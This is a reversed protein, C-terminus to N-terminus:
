ISPLFMGCLQQGVMGTMAAVTERRLYGEGRFLDKYRRLVGRGPSISFNIDDLSQEGQEANTSSALRQIIMQCHMFILEKAAILEHGRLIVLTDFAKSHYPYAPNPGYGYRISSWVHYTFPLKNVESIPLPDHLSQSVRRASGTSRRVKLLRQRYAEKKNEFRERYSHEHRMLFRPSDWGILLLAIILALAPLISSGVQWRWADEYGVFNTLLSSVQMVTWKGATAAVLNATFGLFIGLADFVQRVSFDAHFCM